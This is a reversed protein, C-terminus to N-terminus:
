YGAHGVSCACRNISTWRLFVPRPIRKAVLCASGRSPSTGGGRTFIHFVYDRHNDTSIRAVSRELLLADSLCDTFRRPGIDYRDISANFPNEVQKLSPVVDIVHSVRDRWALLQQQPLKGTVNFHKHTVESAPSLSGQLNRTIVSVM